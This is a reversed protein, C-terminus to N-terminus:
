AVSRAISEPLNWKKKKKIRVEDCLVKGRPKGAATQRFEGVLAFVSILVPRQAFHRRVRSGAIYIPSQPTHAHENKLRGRRKADSPKM